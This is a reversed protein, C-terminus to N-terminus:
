AREDADLLALAQTDASDPNHHTGILWAVRESAGAALALAAGAEAHRLSRHLAGRLGRGDSAALRHLLRPFRSLLVFIVREHLRIYGKGADHLLAALELEADDNGAERLLRATEIAHWRDRPAMAAFLAWQEPTLGARVTRAATEDPQAGLSRRFQNLRYRAQSPVTLDAWAWRM